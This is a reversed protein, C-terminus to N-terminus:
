MRFSLGLLFNTTDYEAVLGDDFEVDSFTTQYKVAGFLAPGADLQYRVGLEAQGGLVTASDSAFGVEQGADYSVRMAGIGGGLTASLNDTLPMAYRGAVMLSVASISDTFDVYDTGSSMLDVGLAFGNVLGDSYVGVGLARGNGTDYDGAAWVLSGDRDVGGYVDVSIDQASAAGIGSMLVIASSITKLM